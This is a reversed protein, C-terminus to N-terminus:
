PLSCGLSEKVPSHGLSWQWLCLECTLKLLPRWSQRWGLSIDPPSRKGEGPCSVASSYICVCTIWIVNIFCKFPCLSSDNRILCYMVVSFIISHNCHTFFSSNSYSFSFSGAVILEVPVHSDTPLLGLFHSASFITRLLKILHVILAHM